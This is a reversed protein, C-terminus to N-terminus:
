IKLVKITENQKRNQEVMGNIENILFDLNKAEVVLNTKFDSQAEEFALLIDNIANVIDDLGDMIKTKFLLHHYYYIYTSTSSFAVQSLTVHLFARLNELSHETDQNQGVKSFVRVM